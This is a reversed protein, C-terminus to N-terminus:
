VVIIVWIEGVSFCVFSVILVRRYALLILPQTALLCGLSNMALGYELRSTTEWDSLSPNPHSDWNPLARLCVSISFLITFPLLLGTKFELYCSDRLFVLPL